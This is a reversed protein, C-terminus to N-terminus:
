RLTEEEIDLLLRQLSSANPNIKKWSDKKEETVRRMKNLINNLCIVRNMADHWQIRDQNTKFVGGKERFTHKELYEETIVPLSETFKKRLDFKTKFLYAFETLRKEVEHNARTAEIIPPNGHYHTRIVDIHGAAPHNPPYIFQPYEQPPPAPERIEKFDLYKLVMESFCTTTYASVYQDEIIERLLAIRADRRAIKKFSSILRRRVPPWDKDNLARRLDMYGLRLLCIVCLVALLIERNGVTFVERFAHLASERSLWDLPLFLIGLLASAAGFFWGFKKAVWQM